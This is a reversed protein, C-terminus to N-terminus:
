WLLLCRAQTPWPGPCQQASRRGYKQRCRVLVHYSTEPKGEAVLPACPLVPKICAFTKPLGVIGGLPVRTCTVAQLGVMTEADGVIRGSGRIDSEVILKWDRRPSGSSLSPLFNGQGRLRPDYEKVERPGNSM